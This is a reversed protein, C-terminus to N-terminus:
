KPALVMILQKGLRTPPKEIEAIGSVDRGLRELLAQGIEPHTIERGRFFLSV